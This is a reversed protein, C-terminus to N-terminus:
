RRAGDFTMSPCSGRARPHARVHLGAAIAANRPAGADRELSAALGGGERAYARVRTSPVVKVVEARALGAGGFGRL